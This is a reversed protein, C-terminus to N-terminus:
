KGVAITLKNAPENKSILLLFSSVFINKKKVNAKKIKVKTFLGNGTNPILSPKIELNSIRVTIM